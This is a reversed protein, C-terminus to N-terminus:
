IHLKLYGGGYDLVSVTGNVCSFGQVGWQMAGRQPEQCGSVERARYNQGKLFSKEAM